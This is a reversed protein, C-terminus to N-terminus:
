FAVMRGDWTMIYGPDPIPESSTSMTTRTEGTITNLIRLIESGNNGRRLATIQEKKTM